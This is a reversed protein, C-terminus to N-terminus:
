RCRCRCRACSCCTVEYAYGGCSPNYGSCDASPRVGVNNRGIMMARLTKRHMSELSRLVTRDSAELVSDPIATSINDADDLMCSLDNAGGDNCSGLVNIQVYELKAIAINMYLRTLVLDREMFQALENVTRPRCDVKCIRGSSAPDPVPVASKQPDPNGVRNPDLLIRHRTQVEGELRQILCSLEICRNGAGSRAPMNGSPFNPCQGLAQLTQFACGTFLLCIVTARIM